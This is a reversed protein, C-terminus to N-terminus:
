NYQSRLHCYSLFYILVAVRTTTYFFLHFIKVDTGNQLNVAPVGQPIWSSMWTGLLGPWLICICIKPCMWKDYICSNWGYGKAWEHENSPKQGHNTQLERQWAWMGPIQLFHVGVTHKIKYLEPCQPIQRGEMPLSCNHEVHTGNSQEFLRSWPSFYCHM